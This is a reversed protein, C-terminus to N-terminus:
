DELFGIIEDYLFNRENPEKEIFTPESYKTAQLNLMLDNVKFSDKDRILFKVSDAVFTVSRNMPNLIISLGVGASIEIVGNDAVKIFSSNDPHNIGVEREGFSEERALQNYPKEFNTTM